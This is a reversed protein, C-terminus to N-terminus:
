KQWNQFAGSQFMNLYLSGNEELGEIQFFLCFYVSVFHFVSYQLFNSHLKRLIQQHYHFHEDIDHKDVM